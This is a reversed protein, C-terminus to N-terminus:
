VEKQNKRNRKKNIYIVIEIIGYIGCGITIITALILEIKAIKGNNYGNDIIYRKLDLNDNDDYLIERKDGDEYEIFLYWEGLGAMYGIKKIPKEILNNDNILSNVLKADDEDINIYYVNKLLNIFNFPISILCIIVIITIIFIKIRKKM